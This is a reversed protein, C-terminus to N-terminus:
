CIVFLHSWCASFERVGVDNGLRATLVSDWKEREASLGGEIKRSLIKRDTSLQIREVIAM